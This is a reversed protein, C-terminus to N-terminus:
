IMIRSFDFQSRFGGVSRILETKYVTLHGTYMYNILLSPSWDPKFFFDSRNYSNSADIKCEDTYIFEVDKNENISKAIWFHMQQLNM